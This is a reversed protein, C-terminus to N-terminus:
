NFFEESTKRGDQWITRLARKGNLYLDETERNGETTVVRELTGNVYNRELVRNGDAGYEYETLRTETVAGAADLSRWEVSSIRGRTWNNQLEGILVGAADYHRESLVEGRVGTKYVISAGSSTAGASSLTESIFDSSYATEARVFGTDLASFPTIAPFSITAGATEGKHIVRRVERLSASRSYRYYDTWSATEQWEPKVEASNPADAADSVTEGEEETAEDEEPSPPTKVRTESRTLVGNGYFYRVLVEETDSFDQEELLRGDENYREMFAFIREEGRVAAVATFVSRGQGNRFIWQCRIPKGKEYLTRSDIVYAPKYYPSIEPPLSSAPAISLGLCYDGRLASIRSPAPYLALGAANSVYWTDATQASLSGFRGLLLLVSLVGFRTARAKSSALM